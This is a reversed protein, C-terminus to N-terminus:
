LYALLRGCVAVALWLALSAAAQARGAAPPDADWTALRARWRAQFLAANALGLAILGWKLWLVANGALPRADAAFLSLGTLLMLAVGARSLGSMLAYAPALAIGRGVGLLRLDLVLIPGILLVLGLVHLVNALPYLFASERMAVGWASAELAAAWAPADPYDM